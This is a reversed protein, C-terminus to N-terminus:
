TTAHACSICHHLRRPGTQQPQVGLQPPPSDRGWMGRGKNNQCMFCQIHSLTMNSCIYLDSLANQHTQLPRWERRHKEPNRVMHSWIKRSKCSCRDAPPTPPVGSHRQVSGGSGRSSAKSHKGETEGADEGREVESQRVGPMTAPVRGLNGHRGCADWPNRPAPHHM